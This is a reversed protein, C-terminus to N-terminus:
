LQDSEWSVSSLPRSPGLPVSVPNQLGPDPHPHPKPGLYCPHNTDKDGAGMGKMGDKM